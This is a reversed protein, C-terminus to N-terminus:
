KWASLKTQNQLNKLVLSENLITTINYGFRRLCYNKVYELMLARDAFKLPKESMTKRVAERVVWVGLPASYEETIIRIALISAQRKTDRMKELVALRTAYYGGATEQAYSTRGAYSEYDHEAIIERKRTQPVFQEYLEYQWVDDFFLIAYYNGLHGGIYLACDGEPLHKIHSILEKGLTDDVATISWRTPVLKRSKQLGFNGISLAKTLTHEDIGKKFLTSLAESAKLDTDQAAKELHVNQQINHTAQAKTITANAGHPTAVVDYRAKFTPKKDLSIDINAINKALTVEQALELFRKSFGTTAQTNTSQKQASKINLHHRANIMSTRLDIIHPITYNEKSWLLPDDHNNYEEVNLLGVNVNPYGFNGVFVNPTQGQYSQKASLNHKRQSAQKYTIPCNRYTHNISQCFICRQTQSSKVENQQINDDIM